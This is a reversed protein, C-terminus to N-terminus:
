LNQAGPEVGRGAQPRRAEPRSAAGAKAAPATGGKGLLPPMDFNRGDSLAITHVVGRDVGVPPHHNALVEIATEEIRFSIHWGLPDKILRGGTIRGPCGRSVGPLPRSWRFRVRGVLTITVEGWRRSLRTIRFKSAQPVDVVLRASREKLKPPRALGKHFRDWARLYHKLVQQTAQAPLEALWEWGPLPDTRAARLQRDIEAVSPRRAVGGNGCTYWEHLLNWLARATHGQRDLAMVQVRTLYIRASHARRRAAVTRPEM